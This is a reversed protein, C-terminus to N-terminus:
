KIKNACHAMNNNKVASNILPVVDSINLTLPINIYVFIYIFSSLRLLDTPHLKLSPIEFARQTASGELTLGLYGQPVRAQQWDYSYSWAWHALLPNQQGWALLLAWPYHELPQKCWAIKSRSSSAWVIFYTTLNPLKKPLTLAFLPCNTLTHTRSLTHMCALCTQSFTKVTGFSM